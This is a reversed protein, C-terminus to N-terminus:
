GKNINLTDYAIIREDELMMIKEKKHHLKIRGEIVACRHNLFWNLGWLSGMLVSMDPVVVILNNNVSSKSLSEIKKVDEWNTGDLVFVHHPGNENRQCWVWPWTDHGEQWQQYLVPLDSVNPNTLYLDSGYGLSSYPQSTSPPLPLSTPKLNALRYSESNPTAVM